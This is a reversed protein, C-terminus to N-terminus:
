DRPSPSTYLSVAEDCQQRAAEYQGKNALLRASELLPALRSRSDSTNQKAKDALKQATALIQTKRSAIFAIAEDAGEEELVRAFEISEPSAKGSEIQSVISKLFEDVRELNGDRQQQALKVAEDRDRWNKLEKSKAVALEYTEDISRVIQDRMRDPNVIYEKIENVVKGMDDLKKDQEGANHVQWFIGGAILILAASVGIMWGRFARRTKALDDRLRRVSLEAESHSAVPYYVQEAALIQQRYDSQLRAREQADEIADPTDDLPANIVDANEDRPLDDQAILYYVKKGKSKAYLLEYQTYSLRGFQEDPLPPEAGYADGVIQLIATCSDIKKRLMPRIDDSSTDFIDQWVPEYGLATLTNAVLQRATKLERSVSSIFIRPKM